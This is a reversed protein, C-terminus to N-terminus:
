LIIIASPHYGCNIISLHIKHSKIFDDVGLTESWGGRSYPDLFIRGGPSM